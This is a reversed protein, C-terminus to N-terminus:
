RRRPERTSRPVDNGGAVWASPVREATGTEEAGRAAIVVEKLNDKDAVGADALGVQQTSEGPVLEAELGLGGDADLERSPADLYAERGRSGEERAESSGELSLAARETSWTSPLVMLACIQSVAPWSRYRAM